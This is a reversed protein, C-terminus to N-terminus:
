AQLPFQHPVLYKLRSVIASTRLTKIIDLIEPEAM